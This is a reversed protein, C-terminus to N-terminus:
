IWSIKVSVFYSDLHVSPRGRDNEDVVERYASSRKPRAVSHSVVSHQIALRFGGKHLDREQNRGGGRAPWSPRAVVPEVNKAIGVLIEIKAM